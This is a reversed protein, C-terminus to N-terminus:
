NNSITVGDYNELLYQVEVGGPKSVLLFINVNYNSRRVSLQSMSISDANSIAVQNISLPSIVCTTQGNQLMDDIELYFIYFDPSVVATFITAALNSGTDDRGIMQYDDVSNSYSSTLSSGSSVSIEM